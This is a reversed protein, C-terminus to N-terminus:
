LRKFNFYLNEVMSVWLDQANTYCGLYKVINKHECTHMMAIENEITEIKTNITM